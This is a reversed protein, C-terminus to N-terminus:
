DLKDLEFEIWNLLQRQELSDTGMPDWIVKRGITRADHNAKRRAIIQDRLGKLFDKTPLGGLEPRPKAGDCIARLEADITMTITDDDGMEVVLWPILALANMVGVTVMMGDPALGHAGGKSRGLKHPKGDALKEVMAIFGILTSERRKVGQRRPGEGKAARLAGRVSPVKGSQMQEKVYEDVAEPNDALTRARNREMKEAPTISAPDFDRVANSQDSRQDGGRKEGEKRIREGKRKLLVVAMGGAIAEISTCDACAADYWGIWDTLEHDEREDLGDAERLQSLASTILGRKKAAKGSHISIVNAPKAPIAKM